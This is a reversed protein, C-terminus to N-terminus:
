LTGGARVIARRLTRETLTQAVQAKYTASGSLDDIPDIDEPVAQSAREIVGESVREGTLESEAAPARVTSEAVATLAIRAESIAADSLAVNAAVGATAWGGEVTAHKEYATGWRQTAPFQWQISTLVENEGRATRMHGVFFEDLPVTRREEEGVLTVTADLSCLPAIIDLAPDAHCVAGGVTGLQRVQRDGIVSCADQFMGVTSSIEHSLLDAYTTTAGVRVRDGDLSVGAMSPIDTVDLLLDPEAFGQRLLLTLTQGGAVVKASGDTEALRRVAEEVTEPAVYDPGDGPRSGTTM